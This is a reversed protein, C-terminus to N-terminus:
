FFLIFHLVVYLEFKAAAATWFVKGVLWIETSIVHGYMNYLIYLLLGQM